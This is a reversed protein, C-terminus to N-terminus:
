DDLFSKSSRPTLLRSPDSRQKARARPTFSCNEKERGQPPLFFIILSKETSNLVVSRGVALAFSWGGGRSRRDRYYVSKWLPLHVESAPHFNVGERTLSRFGAAEARALKECGRPSRVSVKPFNHVPLSSFHQIFRSTSENEPVPM